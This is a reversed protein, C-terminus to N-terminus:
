SAKPFLSEAYERQLEQLFAELRDPSFQKITEETSARFLLSRLIEREREDAAHECLELMRPYRVSSPTIWFVLQLCDLRTFESTSPERAIEILEEAGTVKLCENQLRVYEAPLTCQRLRELLPSAENM